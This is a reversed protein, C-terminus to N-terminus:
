STIIASINVDISLLNVKAWPLSRTTRNRPTGYSKHLGTKWYFRTLLRQHRLPKYEVAIIHRGSMSDIMRFSSTWTNKACGDNPYQALFYLILPNKDQACICLTPNYIPHRSFWAMLYIDCVTINMLKTNNQMIQPLCLWKCCHKFIFQMFKTVFHQTLFINANWLIRVSNIHKILLDSRCTSKGAAMTLVM